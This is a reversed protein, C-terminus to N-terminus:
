RRFAADQPNAQRPAEVPLRDVLEALRAHYQAVTAAAEAAKKETEALRRYQIRIERAAALDLGAPLAREKYIKALHDYSKALAQERAALERFYKALHFHDEPMSGKDLSDTNSGQVPQPWGARPEQAPVSSAAALCFFTLVTVTLKSKVYAEEHLLTTLDDRAPVSRLEASRRIETQLFGCRKARRGGVDGCKQRGSPPLALGVGVGGM